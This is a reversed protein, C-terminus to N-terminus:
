WYGNGEGAKGFKRGWIIEFFGLIRLGRLNIELRGSLVIALLTSLICWVLRKQPERTISLSSSPILYV